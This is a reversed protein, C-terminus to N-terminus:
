GIPIGVNNLRVRVIDDENYDPRQSAPNRGQPVDSKATGAWFTWGLQCNSGLQNPQIQDSEILLEVDWNYEDGCYLRILEKLSSFARTHPLLHEFASAPMPGLQLTFRHQVDFVNAGLSTNLGLQFHNDARLRLQDQKRLPLWGGTFHSISVPMKLHDTLLSRLGDAPRHSVSLLGSYFLRNWERRQAYADHLGAENEHQKVSLGALAGCYLDFRNDAPRDMEATPEANADARYFLSIMRHHFVDAFRALAEDGFNHVRSYATETIHLPMPNNPGFIGFFWNHMQHKELAQDYAKTESLQQTKAPHFQSLTTPAFALSPDQRLVIVEDAAKIAEGIRPSGGHWADVFRLVTFMDYRFPEASVASFWNLTNAPQRLAGGM